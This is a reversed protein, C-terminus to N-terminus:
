FFVRSAALYFTDALAPLHVNALIIIQLAKNNDPNQSPIYAHTHEAYFASACLIMLFYYVAMDGQHKNHKQLEIYHSEGGGEREREYVCMCVCVRVRACM